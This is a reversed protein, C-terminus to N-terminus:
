PGTNSIDDGLGNEDIANPGISYILFTETGDRGSGWDTGTRETNGNMIKYMMINGWYDRYMRNFSPASSGTVDYCDADTMVTAPYSVIDLDFQYPDFYMPRKDSASKGLATLDAASMGFRIDSMFPALRAGGSWGAGGIERDSPPYMGFRDRYREVGAAITKVALKMSKKANNQLVKNVGAAGLGMLILLICIVVLMEILTFTSRRM